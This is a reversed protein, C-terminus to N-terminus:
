APTEDREEGAYVRDDTDVTADITVPERADSPAHLKLWDSASEVPSPARIVYTVPHEPDGAIQLPLVKSVLSMFAVPNEVAQRELYDAGGVRNLATLIM